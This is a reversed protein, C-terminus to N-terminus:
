GLADHGQACVVGEGHLELGDDLVCELESVVQVESAFTQLEGLPGLRVDTKTMGRAVIRSWSRPGTINWGLSRVYKFEDCWQVWEGSLVTCCLYVLARVHIGRIWVFQRFACSFGFHPARHPFPIEQGHIRSYQPTAFAIGHQDHRPPAHTPIKYYHWVTHGYKSRLVSRFANVHALVIPPQLHLHQHKLNPHSDRNSHVHTYHM